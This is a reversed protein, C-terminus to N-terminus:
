PHPYRGLNCWRIPTVATIRRELDVECHGNAILTFLVERAVGPSGVLDVVSAVHGLRQEAVLEMLEVYYPNVRRYRGIVRLHLHARKSIEGMYHHRVGACALAREALDFKRRAHDSLGLTPKVEIVHWCGDRRVLLDPFMHIGRDGVEWTLVFPQTMLWDVGVQFDFWRLWAMELRSETALLLAHGERLVPYHGIRNPAGPYTGIRRAGRLRLGDPVDFEVVSQVKARGNVNWIVKAFAPDLAGEKLSAAVDEQRMPPLMRERICGPIRETGRRATAKPMQPHPPPIVGPALAWKLPM